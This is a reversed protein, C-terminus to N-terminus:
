KLLEGKVNYIHLGPCIDKGSLATCHVVQLIYGGM